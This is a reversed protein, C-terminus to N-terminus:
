PKTVDGYLVRCFLEALCFLVSQIVVTKIQVQKFQEEFTWEHASIRDMGHRESNAFNSQQNTVQVREPSSREGSERRRVISATASERQQFSCEHSTPLSESKVEFKRPEAQKFRRREYNIEDSEVMSRQIDDLEAMRSEVSMIRPKFERAAKKHLPASLNEDPLNERHSRM